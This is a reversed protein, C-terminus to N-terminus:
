VTMEGRLPIQLWKKVEENNLGQGLLYMLKAVCAETTMDAGSTVGINALHFSNEYKGLEVGGGGKCQTVNVVIGGQDIYNKLLALFSENTPANGAGFSEMIVARLGPTSFISSVLNSTMGPYLKMIAINDDMETHLILPQQEPKNIYNDNYKVYIGIEALKPYNSSTFAHFQEANDKYTRNGRYLANEFYICVEPVRPKDNHYDAAIEISNLINERGDTRMVGLPLQSGTLIVPKSLNELLFSLAAATYAMTDTGHLIVFGNMEHYHQHIEKALRIWFDPNTDSSDILPLLEKFIIEADLLKLMPLHAYIDRFPFPELAGSKQNKIMGITGGTYLLLIKKKM